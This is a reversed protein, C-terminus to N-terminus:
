GHEAALAVQAVWLPRPRTRAACCVGGVVEQAVRFRPSDGKRGRTGKRSKPIAEIKSSRKTTAMGGKRRMGNKPTLQTSNLENTKEKEKRRQSRENKTCFAAPPLVNPLFLPFEPPSCPSFRSHPRCNGPKSHERWLHLVFFLTNYVM